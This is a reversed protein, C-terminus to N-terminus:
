VAVEWKNTIQSDLQNWTELDLTAWTFDELDKLRNLDSDEFQNWTMGFMQQSTQTDDWSPIEQTIYIPKEYYQTKLENWNSYTSIDGWRIDATKFEDWPVWTFAIILEMHSPVLARMKNVFKKFKKPDLSEEVARFETIKVTVKYNPFDQIIESGYMPKKWTVDTLIKPTILYYGEIRELLDTRRDEYSLSYDTEIDFLEEWRDLGWTATQIYFQNLVDIVNSHLRVSESTEANFIAQAHASDKYYRPIYTQIDGSIDRQDYIFVDMKSEVKMPNVKGTPMRAVNSLMTVTGTGSYNVGEIRRINTTKYQVLDAGGSLLQVGLKHINIARSSLDAGGSLSIPSSVLRTIDKAKATLDAGGALSTTGLPAVGGTAHTVISAGGSLPISGTTYLAM